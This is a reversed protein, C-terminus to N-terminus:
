SKTKIFLRPVVTADLVEIIAWAVGAVRFQHEALAPMIKYDRYIDRAGKVRSM